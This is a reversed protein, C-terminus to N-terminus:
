VCAYVCRLAMAEPRLTGLWPEFELVLQKTDLPYIMVASCQSGSTVSSCNVTLVGEIHAGISVMKECLPLLLHGTAMRLDAM